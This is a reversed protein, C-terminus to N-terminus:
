LCYSPVFSSVLIHSLLLQSLGIIITLPKNHNYHYFLNMEGYVLRGGGCVCVYYRHIINCVPCM